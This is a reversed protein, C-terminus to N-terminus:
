RKRVMEEDRIGLGRRKADVDLLFRQGDTWYGATPKVGPVQQSWWANFRHMLMERLYKGLMSAAATPLSSQEAKEGFTLRVPVASGGLTYSAFSETESEITLDRDPWMQRLLPGYRSRGGQRDCVILLNQDGFRVMLDDLLVAVISFLAGAKNRTADFMRNLRREGVVAARLHRVACGAREVEVRLGNALVRVSAADSAAPFPEGDFRGYWPHAALEAAAEPAVRALLADFNECWGNTAVLSLVSKELEKLGASPSYVAKSDNFHLKRGNKSRSKSVARGWVEWLDPPADGLGDGPVEVACCAVVLPGLLPGYGVEDLGALIM